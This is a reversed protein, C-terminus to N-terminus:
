EGTDDNDECLSIWTENFPELHLKMTKFSTPYQVRNMIKGGKGLAWGSTDEGETAIDFTYHFLLKPFRKSLEFYIGSPPAMCTDFKYSAVKEIYLEGKSTKLFEATSKESMNVESVEVQVAERPTCWQEMKYTYKDLAQWKALISPRINLPNLTKLEEPIPKIANFTFDSEPTRMLAVAADIDSAPGALTMTNHCDYQKHRSLNSAIGTIEEESDREFAFTASM